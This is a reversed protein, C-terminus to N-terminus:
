GGAECPGKFDVSVADGDAEAPPFLVLWNNDCAGTGPSWDVQLSGCRSFAVDAPVDLPCETVVSDILSAKTACTDGSVERLASEGAGIKPSGPDDTSEKSGFKFLHRLVKMPSPNAPASDTAQKFKKYGGDDDLTASRGFCRFINRVRAM